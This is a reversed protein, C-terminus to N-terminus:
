RPRAKGVERQLSRFRKRGEMLPDSAVVESGDECVEIRM